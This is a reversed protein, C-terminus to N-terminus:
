QLTLSLRLEPPLAHRPSRKILRNEVLQLLTEFADINMRTLNIFEEEDNLQFYLFVRGYGGYGTLYNWRIRPKSWWRRLRRRGRVQQVYIIYELCMEVIEIAIRDM